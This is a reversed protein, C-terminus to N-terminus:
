EGQGGLGFDVSELRELISVLEKSGSVGLAKRAGEYLAEHRKVHEAAVAVGKPSLCLFFARGDEPDSERRVLGARMLRDAMVTLTGTSIGLRQALAKMRIKGSRQLEAVVHCQRPSLGVLEAIGEEWSSLREYLRTLARDLEAKTAGRGSMTRM